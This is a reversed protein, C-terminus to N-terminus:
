NLDEQRKTSWLKVKELACQKFEVTPTEVLDLFQVQYM